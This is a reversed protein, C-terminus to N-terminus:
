NIKVKLSHHRERQSTNKEHIFHCDVEINKTREYLVPTFAIHRAAQNDCFLKMYVEELFFKKLRYTLKSNKKKKMAPPLKMCLEEELTGQLFICKVDM